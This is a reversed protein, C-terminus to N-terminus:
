RKVTELINNKADELSSYELTFANSIDICGILNEFRKQNFNERNVCASILQEIVSFISLGAMDVGKKEPVYKLFIFVPDFGAAEAVASDAPLGSYIRSDFDSLLNRDSKSLGYRTILPNRNKLLIKRPFGLIKKHSCDFATWEDSGFMCGSQVLEFVLASKGSNSEGILIIAKQGISAWAAHYVIQESNNKIPVQFVLFEAMLVSEIFDKGRFLERENLIIVFFSDIKNFEFVYDPSVKNEIALYEYVYRLHDVVDEFQSVFLCASNFVSFWFEDKM